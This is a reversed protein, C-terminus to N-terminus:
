KDLFREVPSVNGSGPQETVYDYYYSELTENGVDYYDEEVIGGFVWVEDGVRVASGGALSRPLAAIERWGASANSLDLQWCERNIGLLTERGGCFLVKDQVFSAFGMHRSAPLDPLHGAPCVSRRSTVVASGQSGYGGILLTTFGSASVFPWLFLLLGSIFSKM